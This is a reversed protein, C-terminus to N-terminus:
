FKSRLVWVDQEKEAANGKPFHHVTEFFMKAVARFYAPAHYAECLNSGSSSGSRVVIKGQDYRIREAPDLGGSWADGHTTLLLAGGPMLVRRLEALWRNQLDEDLHTFVSNAYVLDFSQDDCELPPALNNTFFHGLDLNESCWDILKSNYDSGSLAAATKGPWHRIIRGCGCGFDLISNFDSIPCGADSLAGEIKAASKRGTKVFIEIEYENIVDYIMRPPPVPDANPNDRRWRYNARLTRPRWARFRGRVRWFIGYVGLKLFLTKIVRRLPMPRDDNMM